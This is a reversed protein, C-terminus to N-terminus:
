EGAEMTYLIHAGQKIMTYPLVHNEWLEGNVHISKVYKNEKSLGKAEVVLKKGNGLVIEAYPLSPTGFNYENSSPAIPYFGLANFIYWASMQGCDDNGCLAGPTNGYQTSMIKHILDQAKQPKGVYNYLYAIHHSPENGHWYHGIRGYIDDVGDFSRNEADIFVSDLKAEFAEKGGMSEILGEVDHPVYWSYQWSTGETFDGLHKFFNPNFPKRWEGNANRGRMFRTEPDVLNKYHMSRKKFHDFDDQKGLKKAVQAICFDNYAYELTKSVSENEEDFPVWGLGAYRHVSNYNKNKATTVMAEYAREYDFGPLDKMIADAIVPIAHYGIMCWTENSWFSWVPLLKEVSQDYHALMSQVMHANREPQLLCFLPHTARYTDWLSFVTYNTFGESSHLNHDLGRYTGDVDEYIVPALFNHYLASYFTEKTKQDGKIRIKNMETNWAKEGAIRVKDFDFAPIEANLNNLAAATSNSSIGVRVSVANNEQVPFSAAFVLDKGTAEKTSRFRYGNYLVPKGDKYMIYDKVPRSFVAAFYVYRERAWGSVLHFGTLTSDNILRLNAWKVDWRLVHNLDIVIHGTDQKPFTFNLIGSRTSSTMEAVIGNDDLECRYYNAKAVEGKHSFRSIYGSDPAHKEGPRIKYEGVQPVFLIDGLDPIGTGHLHTLSFGYLLSDSYEYGSATEWLHKETDPGIQVMGFPVQSGPYVNGEGKSGVLPNIYQALDQDKNNQPVKGCGVFVVVVLLITLIRM